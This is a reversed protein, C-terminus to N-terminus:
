KLVEVGPGTLRRLIPQAARLFAHTRRGTRGRRRRRVIMPALPPSKWAHREPPIRKRKWKTASTRELGRSSKRVGEPHTSFHAWRDVHGLFQRDLLSIRVPARIDWPGHNPVPNCQEFTGKPTHQFHSWRDFMTQSHEFTDFFKQVLSSANNSRTKAVSIMIRHDGGPYSAGRAINM